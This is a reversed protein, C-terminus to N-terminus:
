RVFPLASLEKFLADFEADTTGPSADDHIWLGVDDTGLTQIESVVSHAARRASELRCYVPILFELLM